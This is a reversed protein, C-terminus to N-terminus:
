GRNKSGNILNYVVNFSFQKMNLIAHFVYSIPFSLISFVFVFVEVARESQFEGLFSILAVM